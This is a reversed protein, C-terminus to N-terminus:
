SDQEEKHRMGNDLYNFYPDTIFKYAEGSLEKNNEKSEELYDAVHTWIDHKLAGPKTQTVYFNYFERLLRIIADAEYIKSIVESSENFTLHRRECYANCVTTVANSEQFERNDNHRDNLWETAFKLVDKDDM